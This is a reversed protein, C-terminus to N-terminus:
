TFDHVVAFSGETKCLEALTFNDCVVCVSERERERERECVHVCVCLCVLCLSGSEM